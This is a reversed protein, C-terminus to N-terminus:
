VKRIIYFKDKATTGLITDGANYNLATTSDITFSLPSITTVQYTGSTVAKVTTYNSIDFDDTVLTSDPFVISGDKKIVISDSVTTASSAKHIHYVFCIENQSGGKNDITAISM